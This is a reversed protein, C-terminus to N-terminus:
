AQRMVREESTPSRVPYSAMNTTPRTAMQIERQRVTVNKTAATGWRSTCYVDIRGDIPIM